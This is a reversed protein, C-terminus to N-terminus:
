RPQGDQKKHDYVMYALLVATIVASAESNRPAAFFDLAILALLLTGMGFKRFFPKM